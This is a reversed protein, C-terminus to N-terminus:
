INDLLWETQRKRWEYLWKGLKFAPSDSAQIADKNKCFLHALIGIGGTLCLIALFATRSTLFYFCTCM